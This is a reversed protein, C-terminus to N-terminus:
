ADKKLDKLLDEVSIVKGKEEIRKKVEVGNEKMSRESVVVRLPIGILDADNFKDGAGTDRDDFLVEIGAKKLKNYISEAEDRVENKEGLVLLHIKFPAIAEPWILGKDDSLVEAITGMLRGLGIGYSGMIVSKKTGDEDQYKLDLADSFRTGLPFINGIEVARHEVLNSKILDLKKIIEDTYVEKNIAIGKNEDVYITDEGAGTLTQFEHSFPSFVGGSAVTFYTLHGIGIRKFIKEYADKIKKYLGEHEEESKSFSYLDKMIFERTRMIGSKARLENRFKTQFQYLLVPLDKYSAIFNKLTKTIPAEHSWAFGVETNNKLKSKFWIDVKEDNWQDTLEWTAKEQLASFSSEQGGIVDMEERIIKEIKQIVKHGLPLYDYVGALEKNIFGARILLEANKSVEDSPVERRTKTFLQSQKM